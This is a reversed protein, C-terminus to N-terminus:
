EMHKHDFIIRLFNEQRILVQDDQINLKAGIKYHIDFDLIILKVFFVPM